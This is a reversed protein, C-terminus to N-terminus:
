RVNKLVITYTTTANGICQISFSAILSRGISFQIDYVLQMGMTVSIAIQGVAINVEHESQLLKASPLLQHCQLIIENFHYRLSINQRWQFNPSSEQDM